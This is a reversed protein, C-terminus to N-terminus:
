AARGAHAPYSNTLWKNVESPLFVVKRASLRRCPVKGERAWKLLTVKHLGLIPALEAATLPREISCALAPTENMAYKM